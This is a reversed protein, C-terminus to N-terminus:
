RCCRGCGRCRRRRCRAPRSRGRSAARGTGLSHCTNCTILHSRSLRPDFFLMHGLDVQAQSLPQGRLEEVREPITGFLASATARLTDGGTAAADAPDPAAATPATGPVGDTAVPEGDAPTATATATTADAADQAPAEDAPPRCAATLLAITAIALALTTRNRM